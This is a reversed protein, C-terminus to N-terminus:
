LVAMEPSFRSVPHTTPARVAATANALKNITASAHRAPPLLAHRWPRRGTKVLGRAGRMGAIVRGVQM